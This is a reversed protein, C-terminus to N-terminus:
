SYPWPLETKPIKQSTRETYHAAAVHMAENLRSRLEAIDIDRFLAGCQDKLSIGCGLASARIRVGLTEMYDPIDTMACVPRASDADLALTIRLSHQVALKQSSMGLQRVTAGPRLCVDEIMVMWPDTLPLLERAYLSGDYQDAVVLWTVGKVPAMADFRNRKQIMGGHKRTVRSKVCGSCM